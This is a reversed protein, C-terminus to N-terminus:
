REFSTLCNQWSAYSEAALCILIGPSFFVKFNPLFSSACRPLLVIRSVHFDGKLETNQHFM